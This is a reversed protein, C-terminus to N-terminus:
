PFLVLPDKVDGAAGHVSGAVGVTALGFGIGAIGVDDGVLSTHPGVETLKRRTLFLDSLQTDQEPAAAIENDVV